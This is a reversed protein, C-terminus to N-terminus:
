RMLADLLDRGLGTDRPSPAALGNADYWDDTAEPHPGSVAVRGHGYPAALAAIEGNTYTALTDVAKADDDLVFFPGDQFYLSHRTNRWNVPIVTDATTTVSAGASTIYQDTDGPLIDLGPNRGALYGGMCLGLYRGGAAVYDRIAASYPELADFAEDLTGDGGPQVYVRAPRLTAASLRLKERPGVYRVDFGWTSGRLLAAAAESCSPCGGPGRYVLALPHGPRPTEPPSGAGATGGACGAALLACFLVLVL